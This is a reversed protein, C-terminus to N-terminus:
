NASQLFAVVKAAEEETLNARIKMHMAAVDWEVDSFTDPSAISHCRICNEGWIQAGSKSSIAASTKCSTISSSFVLIGFLFSIIIIFNKM